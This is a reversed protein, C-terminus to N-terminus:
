ILLRLIHLSLQPTQLSQGAHLIGQAVVLLRTLQVLLVQRSRLLSSTGEIRGISPGVQAIEMLSNTVVRCCDVGKLRRQLQTPCQGLLRPFTEHKAVEPVEVRDQSPVFAGCFQLFAAEFNGLDGFVSRNNGIGQVAETGQMRQGTAVGLGDLGVFRRQLLCLPQAIATQCGLCQIIQSRNVMGLLLELGGQGIVLLTQLDRLGNAIAFQFTGIQALQSQGVTRQLLVLYRNLQLSAANRQGALQAIAFQLRQRQAVQAVAM